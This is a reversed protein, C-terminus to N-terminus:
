LLRRQQVAEEDMGAEAADDYEIGPEDFMNDQLLDEDEDSVSIVDEPEEDEPEEDDM